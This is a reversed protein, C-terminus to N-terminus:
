QRNRRDSASKLAEFTPAWLGVFIGENKRGSLFLAISAGISGITLIHLLSMGTTQRTSRDVRRIVSEAVDRQETEGNNYQTRDFTQTNEM